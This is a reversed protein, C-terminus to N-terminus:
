ALTNCCCCFAGASLGHRRNSCRASSSIYANVAPHCIISPQNIIRCRQQRLTLLHTLSHTLSHSLSFRRCDEAQNPMLGEKFGLYTAHGFLCVCVFVSPLARHEQVERSGPQPTHCQTDLHNPLSVAALPCPRSATVKTYAGHM